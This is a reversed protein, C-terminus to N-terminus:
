TTLGHAGVVGGILDKMFGTLNAANAFTLNYSLADGHHLTGKIRAKVTKGGPDIYAYSGGSSALNIANLNIDTFLLSDNGDLGLMLIRRSNDVAHLDLNLQKFKFDCAASSGIKCADVTDDCNVFRASIDVFTGPRSVEMATSAVTQSISVTYTGTGGTTGTLQSVITTGAAVGSGIVLQGPALSNSPVATVTMTTTSISATITLPTMIGVRIPDNCDDFIADILASRCRLDLATSTINVFKVKDIVEIDWIMPFAATTHLTGSQFDRFEGGVLRFSVRWNNAASEAAGAMHLVASSAGTGTAVGGFITINEMSRQIYFSGTHALTYMAGSVNRASVPLVTLDHSDQIYVAEKVDTMDHPGIYGSTEVVKVAIGFDASGDFHSDHSMYGIVTSSHELSHRATGGLYNNNSVEINSGSTSVAKAQPYEFYNGTIIADECLYLEVLASPILEESLTNTTTVNVYSGSVKYQKGATQNNIFRCNRVEAGQVYGMFIAGAPCNVIEIGDVLVLSKLPGTAGGAAIACGIPSATAGAWTATPRALNAGDIKGPGILAGRGQFYILNRYLESPNAQYLTDFNSAASLTTEQLFIYTGDPISARRDFTHAAATIVVRNSVACALELAARPNGNTLALFDELSVQERAKDQLTRTVAGSGSQIFGVYSSGTGSLLDRRLKFLSGRAIGDVTSSQKDRVYADDRKM